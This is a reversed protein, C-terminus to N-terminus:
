VECSLARSFLTDYEVILSSTTSTALIVGSCGFVTHSLIEVPKLSLIYLTLSPNLVQKYSKNDCRRIKRNVRHNYNYNDDNDDYYDLLALFLLLFANLFEPCFLLLLLVGIVVASCILLKYIPM